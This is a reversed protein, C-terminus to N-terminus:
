GTNTESWARTYMESLAIRCAIRRSVLAGSVRRRRWLRQVDTLPASGEMSHKDEGCRWKTGDVDICWRRRRGRTKWASSSTCELKESCMTEGM